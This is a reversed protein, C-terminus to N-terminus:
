SLLPEIADALHAGIVASGEPSPHVEDDYFEPRDRTVVDNGDVFTVDDRGRALADYRRSLEHFGECADLDRGETLPVVYGYIVAHAGDGTIEDVLEIMTGGSLDPGILGDIPGCGGDAAIDNGGGSVVVIDWDEDTYTEPIPETGCEAALCAGGVARNEVAVDFGRARLEAGAVAPISEDGNWELVSDGVALM